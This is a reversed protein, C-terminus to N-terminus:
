QTLGQCARSLEWLLGRSGLCPISKAASVRMNVEEQASEMAGMRGLWCSHNESPDGTEPLKGKQLIISKRSAKGM